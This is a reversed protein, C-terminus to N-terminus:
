EGQFHYPLRHIWRRSSQEDESHQIIRTPAEVSSCKGILDSTSVCSSGWTLLVDFSGDVMDINLLHKLCYALQYIGISWM